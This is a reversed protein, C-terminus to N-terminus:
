GEKKFGHVFGNADIGSVDGGIIKNKYVLLSALVTGDYGDYNLIRYTYRTVTKGRYKKLNLGQARQIDNYKDYVSDFEVPIKVDEVEVPASDLEYGFGNLFDVRDADTKIGGYDIGSAAVSSASEYSPIATIVTVLVAASLILAAFFKINTAKVTYVFM